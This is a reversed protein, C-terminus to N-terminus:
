RKQFVITQLFQYQRILSTFYFIAYVVPKMLPTLYSDPFDMAKLPPNFHYHDVVKFSKFKNILAILSDASFHNMHHVNYLRVNPAKIGLRYAIHALKYILCHMDITMIIIVANDLALSDILTMFENPDELHELTGTSVIVQYKRDHDKFDLLNAKIIKIREHSIDFLDVGTLDTFNHDDLYKLLAGDGSGLDIVPVSTDFHKSIYMRVSEFFDLNPNSFWNEHVTLYEEMSYIEEPTEKINESFAHSCHTCFLVHADELKMSRFDTQRCIPCSTNM